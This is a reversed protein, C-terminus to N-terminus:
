SDKGAMIAEIEEVTKPIGASLVEIGDDTILIDDEIRIGFGLEKLYVGPEVTIVMGPKLTQAFSNVDHALLGITHDGENHVSAGNPQHYLDEASEMNPILGAELLANAVFEAPATSVARRDVGPGMQAIIMEQAKLVVNYWYKQEETFRGNVPITRTIDSNYHEYDFCIDMLLLEGDKVPSNNDFYHLINNNQGGAVVCISAQRRCGHFAAAYDLEAQAECENMGGHASRMVRLMGDKTVDIAKRIKEIEDPEKQARMDFIKQAMLEISVYPFARRIKDIFLNEPSYPRVAREGTGVYVTETDFIHFFTQIKNDFDEMFYVPMIGSIERYYNKDKEKGYFVTDNEGCHPVFLMDTKQGMMDGILLICDPVDIGTLYFFNREVEFPYNIENWEPINTGSYIVMFSHERMQAAAKARREAYVKSMESM